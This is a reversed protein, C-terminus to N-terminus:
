RFGQEAFQNIMSVIAGYFSVWIAFNSKNIFARHPQDNAYFYTQCTQHHSTTFSEVRRSQHSRLCPVGCKFIWIHYFLIALCSITQNINIVMSACLFVWWENMMRRNDTTECKAVFKRKKGGCKECKVQLHLRYFYFIMEMNIPQHWKLISYIQIKKKNWSEWTFNHLDMIHHVM